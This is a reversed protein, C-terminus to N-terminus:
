LNSVFYLKHIHTHIYVPKIETGGSERQFEDRHKMEVLRNM